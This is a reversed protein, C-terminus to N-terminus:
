AEEFSPISIYNVILKCHKFLKINGFFKILEINCKHAEESNSSYIYVVILRHTKESNYQEGESISLPINANTKIFTVILPQNFEDSTEFIRDVLNTQASPKAISITKSSSFDVLNQQKQSQFKQIFRVILKFTFVNSKNLCKACAALLSAYSSPHSNLCKAHAVLQSAFSSKNSNLCKAM